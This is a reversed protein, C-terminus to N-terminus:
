TENMVTPLLDHQAGWDTVVWGKFGGDDKLLSQLASQSQCSFSDNVRNFACMVSGVGADVAAFFGPAYLERGVREPVNASFSERNCRPELIQPYFILESPELNASDSRPTSNEHFLYPTQVGWKLLFSSSM